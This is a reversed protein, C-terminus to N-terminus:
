EDPAPTPRAASALLRDAAPSAAEGEEGTLLLRLLPYRLLVQRRRYSDIVEGEEIRRGSGGPLEVELDGSRALGVVARLAELEAYEGFSLEVHIFRGGFDAHLHDLYERGKAGLDLPRREDTVLVVREPPRRDQLLARLAAARATRHGAVLCRLGTRVEAGDPAPRQRLELDYPPTSGRRPAEPGRVDVVSTAAVCHRLLHHLLGVLNDGDPPLGAPERQRDGKHEALKADIKDDVLREVQEATPAPPYVLRGEGPWTALWAPGGLRGLREQQAYWGERAWNIVDRPRFDIKGGLAQDAWAHGLPFLGDARVQRRVEPLEAWRRQWAQLRVELIRRAEPLRVRLLEIEYQGIRDWASRQIVAAAQWRILTERMGATVVLLNGAADLLAHLFRALAGAQEPELNDVQDFALVFPRGRFAASQALAALVKKVDEDDAVPAMAARPVGAATALADAEDADLPDGELWRVALRATGDDTAGATPYAGRFFGFLAHYIRRDVVAAQGPAPEGLRDALREFARRAAPWTHPGPDRGALAHRVTANALRFLPTDCFGRGRGRTLVSVVARLLSRPLQEPGAQLNALSVLVAREPRTRAWKGLRALLHSKGIGAEGWLVVGVGTSQEHAQRALGLLRDFEKQHVSDADEGDATSPVVRNLAFPNAHRLRDFFAQLSADPVPTDNPIAAM